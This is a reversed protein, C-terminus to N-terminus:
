EAAVLTRAQNLAAAAEKYNGAVCDSRAQEVLKTFMLEAQEGVAPNEDKTKLTDAIVQECGPLSAIEQASVATAFPAFTVFALVAATKKAISLSM